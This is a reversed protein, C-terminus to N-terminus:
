LYRVSKYRQNRKTNLNFSYTVLVEHSTAGNYIMASTNVDFAYSINLGNILETGMIITIADFSVFSSRLGLGAWYRNKYFITSNIDLQWASLDSRLMFTPRLDFLPDPLAINYGGTLYMHPEFTYFVEGAEANAGTSNTYRLKARNLRTGSLGLYYNTTEYYAGLGIGFVMDSFEQPINPDGQTADQPYEGNDDYQSYNPYEWTPSIHYNFFGMNLGIGLKGTEFAHHYAYLIEVDTQEQFGIKDSKIMLGLGSKLGLINVPGEVSLVSTVPKGEGFGAFMVRNSFCANIEAGTGSFAPNNIVKNLMYGSFLPEQQARVALNVM